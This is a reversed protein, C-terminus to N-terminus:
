QAGDETFILGVCKPTKKTVWVEHRDSLAELRDGTRHFTLGQNNKVHVAAVGM